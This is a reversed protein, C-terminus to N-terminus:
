IATEKVRIKKIRKCLLPVPRLFLNPPPESLKEVLLPTSLIIKIKVIIKETM